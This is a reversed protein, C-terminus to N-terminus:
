SPILFINRFSSFRKLTHFFFTLPSFFCALLQLFLKNWVPRQTHKQKPCLSIFIDSIPALFPTGAINQPHPATRSLLNHRQLEVQTIAILKLIHERKECPFLKSILKFVSSLHTPAGIDKSFWFLGKNETWEM